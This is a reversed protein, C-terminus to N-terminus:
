TDTGSCSPRVMMANFYRSTNLAHIPPVGGCADRMDNARRQGERYQQLSTDDVDTERESSRPINLVRPNDHSLNSAEVQYDWLM